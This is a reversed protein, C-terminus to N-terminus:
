RRPGFLFLFVVAGSIAAAAIAIVHLATDSV